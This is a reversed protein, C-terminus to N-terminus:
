EVDKSYRPSVRTKKSSDLNGVIMSRVRLMEDISRYEVTRDSFQVRMRGSAIAKDLKDLDTQTWAM